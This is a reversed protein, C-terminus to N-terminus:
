LNTLKYFQLSTVMVMVQVNTYSCVQPPLQSNEQELRALLDKDLEGRPLAGLATRTKTIYTRAIKWKLTPNSTTVPPPPQSSEHANSSSSSSTSNVSESRRLEIIKPSILPADNVTAGSAGSRLTKKTPPDQLNPVGPRENLSNQSNESNKHNLLDDPNAQTPTEVNNQNDNNPAIKTSITLASSQDLSDQKVSAIEEQTNNNNESNEAVQPATEVVEKESIFTTSIPSNVEM